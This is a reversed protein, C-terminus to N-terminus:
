VVQNSGTATAYVRGLEPIALVGHVNSIGPIDAVVRQARTDFVTVVDDGMHALFLMGSREDLSAYDWRTARGSLPVDALLKLPLKAPPPAEAQASAALMLFSITALYKM